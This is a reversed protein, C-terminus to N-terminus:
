LPRTRGIRAISAEYKICDTCHNEAHRIQYGLLKLFDLGVNGKEQM